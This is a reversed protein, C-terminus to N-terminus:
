LLMLYQSLSWFGFMGSRLLVELAHCFGVAVVRRCQFNRFLFQVKSSFIRYFWWLVFCFVSLLSPHPEVSTWAKSDESQVWKSRRRCAQRSTPLLNILDLSPRGRANARRSWRTKRDSPSPCPISLDPISPSSATPPPRVRQAKWPPVSLPRGLKETGVERLSQLNM